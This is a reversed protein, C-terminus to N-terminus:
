DQIGSRKESIKRRTEASRTAGRHHHATHAGIGMLCLNEPRNDTKDENLHHVCCGSPIPQGSIREWVLIHEMVYGSSDARQHTPMLVQKYGHSTSRIGGNWNSSKERRRAESRNKYEIEASKRLGYKYAKKYIALPTKNPLADQLAANSLRNYDRLLVEVENQTWTKM